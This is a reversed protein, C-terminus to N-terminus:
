SKEIYRSNIYTSDGFSQKPEKQKYNQKTIVKYM